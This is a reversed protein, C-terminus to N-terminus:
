GKQFHPMDTFPTRGQKRRTDVYDNYADLMTGDWDLINDIHWAGGWKLQTLGIEKASKVMVDAVDDYLKIEWSPRPGLYCMFDFAVGDIHKSKMTKSAGSEVLKRQEEITRLGGLPPIGFDIPTITIARKVVAVLEEDVGELRGLSTSSLKFKSM